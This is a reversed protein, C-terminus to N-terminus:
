PREQLAVLARAVAQYGDGNVMLVGYPAHGGLWEVRVEYVEDAILGSLAEAIRSATTFLISDDGQVHFYIHGDGECSSFTMVEPLTSLAEVVVAISEDVWANIKVPVQAHSPMSDLHERDRAYEVRDRARCSVGKPWFCDM